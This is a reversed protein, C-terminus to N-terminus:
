QPAGFESHPASVPSLKLAMQLMGVVDPVDENGHRLAAPHVMASKGLKRQKVSLTVGNTKAVGRVCSVM